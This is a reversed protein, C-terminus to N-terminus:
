LLIQFPFKMVFVSAKEGITGNILYYPFLNFNCITVAPFAIEDLFEVQVSTTIPHDLYKQISKKSQYTVMGIACLLIIVWIIRRFIPGDSEFIFRFGHLTLSHLFDQWMQFVTRNEIDKDDDNDSEEADDDKKKAAEKSVPCSMNLYSLQILVSCSIKSTLRLCSIELIFIFLYKRIWFRQSLRSDLQAAASKQHYFHILNATSM